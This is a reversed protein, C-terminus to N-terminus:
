EIESDQDSSCDIEPVSPLSCHSDIKSMSRHRHHTSAGRSNLGMERVVSKRWTAHLLCWECSRCRGCTRECFQGVTRALGTERLIDVTATSDANVEELLPLTFAVEGPSMATSIWYNMDQLEELSPHSKKRHVSHVTQSSPTKMSGSKDFDKDLDDLLSHVISVGFFCFFYALSVVNSAILRIDVFDEHRRRKLLQFSSWVFLIVCIINCIHLLAWNPSRTTDHIRASWFHLGVAIALALLLGGCTSDM